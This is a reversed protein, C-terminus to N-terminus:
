LDSSIFLPFDKLEQYLGVARTVGMGAAANLMESLDEQTRQLHFKTCHQQATIGYHCCLDIDRHSAEPDGEWPQISIRKQTVEVVERSLAAELWIERDQWPSLYEDLRKRIPPPSLFVPCTLKKAYKESVCVGTPLDLLKKALQMAEESGERQFDLLIGDCQFASILDQLADRIREPDHGHIPTIDNVILLSHPPLSSPVNSLGTCYPSFHCAMWGIKQPYVRCAAFEAGTMALYLPNKM